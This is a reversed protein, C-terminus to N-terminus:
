SLVEAKRLTLLWIIGFILLFSLNRAIVTWADGGKGGFCGCHIDIGQFLAYLTLGTYIILLFLLLIRMLPTLIRLLLLLGCTGEFYPLFFALPEAGWLPVFRYSAIADAFSEPDYMKPIAALIFLVSLSSDGLYGLLKYKNLTLRKRHPTRNEEV